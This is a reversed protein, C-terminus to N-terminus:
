MALFYWGFDEQCNSSGLTEGELSAGMQGSLTLNCKWRGALPSTSGSSSSFGAITDRGFGEPSCRHPPQGIFGWSTMEGETCRLSSVM